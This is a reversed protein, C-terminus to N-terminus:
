CNLFWGRGSRGEHLAHLHQERYCDRIGRNGKERSSAGEKYGPPEGPPGPIEVPPKRPAKMYGQAYNTNIDELDLWDTDKMGAPKFVTNRIFEEYPQGTVKEIIVGLLLFGNNSYNESTGPEFLLKSPAVLPKYDEINRYLTKSSRQWEETFYTDLGSRHTLLHEITVKQGIQPSIWEPGLYKGILDNYSIKKMDVLKGIAATTFM